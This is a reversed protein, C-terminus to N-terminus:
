SVSRRQAPARVSADMVHPRRDGGSERLEKYWNEVVVFGPPTSLCTRRMGQRRGLAHDELDRHIIGSRDTKDLARAIDINPHNLTTLVEVERQFRARSAEGEEVPM